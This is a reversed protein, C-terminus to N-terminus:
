RTAFHEVWSRGWEPEASAPVRVAAASARAPATGAVREESGSPTTRDHHEVRENHGLVGILRRARGRAAQGASHVAAATNSAPNASLPIVAVAAVAFDNAANSRQASM